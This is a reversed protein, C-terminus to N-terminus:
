PRAKAEGAGLFPTIPAPSPGGGRCINKWIENLYKNLDTIINFLILFASIKVM